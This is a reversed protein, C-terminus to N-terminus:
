QISLNRIYFTGAVSHGSGGIGIYFMDLDDRDLPSNGNNSDWAPTDIQFTLTHWQDLALDTAEYQYIDTWWEQTASQDAFGLVVGKTLTTSYDNSSPLYVDVSITTLNTFTIDSPDPSITLQAEQYDSAIRDFQAVKAAAADAPDDVGPTIVSAGGLTGLLVFSEASVFTHSLEDPTINALDEGFPAAETVIDPQLSADSYSAYTFDWYLGDYTYSVTLLDYGTFQEIKASFSKSAEPTIAEAATGLQPLGMWAGTGNLTIKGTSPEYTFAHTGSLWASVDAGDSNVMNTATADFCTEKLDGAFVAGEGWFSGMDDFVFSGDANFTFTHHYVCPRSGDNALSWWSRAGAADPGVGMSTEARYLSWTKSVEGHLLKSAAEPDTIEITKEFTHTGADNIATLKVVYTGTDAYSYVPSEEASSGEDGFDWAYSTANQSFNTFTVELYNSESIEFQFSAIPNTGGNGDGDKGPEEDKCSVLLTLSTILVSWLIASLGIKKM